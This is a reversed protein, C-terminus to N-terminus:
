NIVQRRNETFINIKDRLTKMENMIKNRLEKIRNNSELTNFTTSNM